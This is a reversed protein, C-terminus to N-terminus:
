PTKNQSYCRSALVAIGVASDGTYATDAAFLSVGQMNEELRRRIFKNAAVGGVLLLGRSDPLGTFSKLAATLSDAVCIEVARALAARNCGGALIREAQSAPGSFSINTGKVAVPLAPLEKSCGCALKELAAGAPFELGMAVGIRDIFQGANLDASGGVAEIRLKGSGEDIVYLIETTGGSIHMVTYRGSALGASWFGAQIHGEQHSMPIFALDMSQAVFAGFAEGVKFVPMYSHDLPRPRVSAGVAALRGKNSLGPNESWIRPINQIHFFVAESQRLGLSGERVPLQLRREWVLNEDGDVLAISTTYASTDLGMFLLQETRGDLRRVWLVTSCVTLM